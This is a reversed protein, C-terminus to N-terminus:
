VMGGMNLPDSEGVAEAIFTVIPEPKKLKESCELLKPDFEDLFTEHFKEYPDFQSTSKKFDDILVTIDVARFVDALENIIWIIRNDVDQGSLYRFLKKLFTYSEPIFGAANQRSFGKLALGGYLRAAFMGFSITQAYINALDKAAIDNGLAHKVDAIQEKFSNESTRDNKNKSEKEDQMIANEIICALIKAKKAMTGALVLASNITVREYNSFAMILAEASKFEGPKSVM